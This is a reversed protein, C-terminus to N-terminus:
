VPPMGCSWKSTDPSNNLYSSIAESVRIPPAADLEAATVGKALLDITQSRQCLGYSTIFFGGEADYGGGGLAWGDGGNAIVTWGTTVAAMGSGNTLLNQGVTIAGELPLSITGACFWAIRIRKAPPVSVCGIFGAHLLSKM